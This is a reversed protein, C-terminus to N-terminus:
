SVAHPSLSPSPSSLSPSSSFSPSHSLSLCLSQPPPPSPSSFLSLFLSLFSLLFAVSPSSSPPLSRHEQTPEASYRRHKSGSWCTMDSSTKDRWIVETERGTQRWQGAARAAECVCVCVGFQARAPDTCESLGKMGFAVGPSWVSDHWDRKWNFIVWSYFSPFM